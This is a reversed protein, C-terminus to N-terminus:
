TQIGSDGGVYTNPFLSSVRNIMQRMQKSVGNCTTVEKGKSITLPAQSRSTDTGSRQGRWNGNLCMITDCSMGCSATKLLNLWCFTIVDLNDWFVSLVNSRILWYIQTKWRSLLIFWHKGNENGWLQNRSGSPRSLRTNCKGLIIHLWVLFWLWSYIIFIIM